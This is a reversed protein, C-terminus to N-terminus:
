KNKMPGDRREITGDRKITIIEDATASLSENIADATLRQQQNRFWTKIFKIM